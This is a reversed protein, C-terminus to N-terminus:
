CVRRSSRGRLQGFPRGTDRHNMRAVTWGTIPFYGVDIKRYSSKGQQGCHEFTGKITFTNLSPTDLVKRRGITPRWGRAYVTVITGSALGHPQMATIAIEGTTPTIYNIEKAAHTGIDKTNAQILWWGDRVIGSAYSKVAERWSEGIAAEQNNAPNNALDPIGRLFLSRSYKQTSYFKVLLSDWPRDAWGWQESGTLHLGSVTLAARFDALDSIRYGVVEVGKGLLYARRECLDKTRNIAENGDAATLFYTETWGGSWSLHEMLINVRYQGM